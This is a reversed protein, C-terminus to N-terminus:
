LRQSAHFDLFICTDCGRNKRSLWDLSLVPCLPLLPQPYGRVCLLCCKQVQYPGKRGQSHLLFHPHPWVLWCLSMPNHEVLQQQRPWRVASTCGPWIDSGHPEPNTSPSQDARTPVVAQGPSQGHEGAPEAVGTPALSSVAGSNDQQFSAQTKRCLLAAAFALSCHLCVM